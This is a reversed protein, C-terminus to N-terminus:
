ISNFTLSCNRNEREIDNITAMCENNLQVLSRIKEDQQGITNKLNRIEIKNNHALELTRDLKQELRQYDARMSHISDLIQELIPDRDSRPPGYNPSSRDRWNGDYQERERSYSNSATATASHPRDPMMMLEDVMSNVYKLSNPFTFDNRKLSNNQSHGNKNGRNNKMINYRLQECNIIYAIVFFTKISFLFLLM